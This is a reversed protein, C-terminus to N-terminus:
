RPEPRNMRWYEAQDIQILYKAAQHSRYEIMSDFIFGLKQLVRVSRVNEPDVLGLIRPLRLTDFGYDICPRSAETALGLGWYKPWLRYGLDVEQLDDLYKLGAMGILEGTEKLIAAWRGFGHKQYDLIPRNCLGQRVEEVSSPGADGTYRLVEPITDLEFVAPADDPVFERLWLRETQLILKAPNSM